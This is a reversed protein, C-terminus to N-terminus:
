LSLSESPLIFPFIVLNISDVIGQKLFFDITKGGGEILADGSMCEKIKFILNSESCQIVIVGRKHLEAIYDPNDKLLFVFTQESKITFINSNLDIDGYKDIIFRLNDANSNLLVPNDIKITNGGVIIIKYRNRFNNRFAMLSKSSYKKFIDNDYSFAIKNNLSVACFIDIM